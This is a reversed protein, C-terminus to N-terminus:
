APSKRNTIDPYSKVHPFLSLPNAIVAVPRAGKCDPLVKRGKIVNCTKEGQCGMSSTFEPLTQNCEGIEVLAPRM